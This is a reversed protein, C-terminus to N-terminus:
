ESFRIGNEILFNKILKEVEENKLNYKIILLPINNESCHQKLANDRPIQYNYFKDEGGFYEIPKYHQIGNYEILYLKDNYNISFDVFIGRKFDPHKIWYQSTYDINM